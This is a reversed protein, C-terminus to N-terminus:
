AITVLNQEKLKKMKREKERTYCCGLLEPLLVIKWFSVTKPYEKNWFEIDFPVRIIITRNFNWIVFNCFSLELLAMEFQVQYYPICGVAVTSFRNRLPCKVFM